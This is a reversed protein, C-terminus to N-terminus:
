NRKSEVLEEKLRELILNIKSLIIEDDEVMQLYNLAAFHNLCPKCKYCKKNVEPPIECFWVSDYLDYQILKRIVDAKTMQIYPLRLSIDRDLIKSVNKFLEEYSNLWILLDDGSIIGSYIKDNTRTFIPVSLLWSVAQILGGSRISVCDDINQQGYSVNIEMHKFNSFNPGKEKMKEKFKDRYKKETLYKNELLFPYKYSIAIVNEPGYTELLEYLLLTSDCGGSWLVFHDSSSNTEYKLKITNTLRENKAM